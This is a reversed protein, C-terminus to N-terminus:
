KYTSDHDIHLAFLRIFERERLATARYKQSFRFSYIRAGSRSTKSLIAEWKLGNDAYLENWTLQCIKKLAKIFALQENKGLNFFDKQFDPFNMDIKIKTM